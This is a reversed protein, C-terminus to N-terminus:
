EGHELLYDNNIIKFSLRGFLVKSYIPIVPRIVYGEGAKGNPYKCQRAIDIMEEVTSIEFVERKFLPVMPLDNEECFSCFKHYDLLIGNKVDYANFVFMQHEKLGMRNKQIGPGCVEAQVAIDSNERLVKDLNYKDFMQWYTNSENKKLSLNRSCVHIDGYVNVFTASAGDCKITWVCEVGRVEDLLKPESQIRIEDTKPVLSPFGGRVNGALHAPIQPEYKEIGIIETLDVGEEPNTVLPFNSLSVILGQSIQGRLKVTRLRIPKEPNNKDKLFGSWSASPLVSDVEFFVCLDGVKFEGKKVVVTWGLVKAAEIRDAGEIPFLESVKQISALKREM